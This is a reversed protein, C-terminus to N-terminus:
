HHSPTSYRAAEREVDPPDETSELVLNAARVIRNALLLAQEPAMLGTIQEYEDNSVTLGVLGANHGPGGCHPCTGATGEPLYVHDVAVATEEDDLEMELVNRTRLPLPTEPTPESM